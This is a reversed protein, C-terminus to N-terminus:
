PILQKLLPSMLIVAISWVIMILAPVMCRLFIRAYSAENVAQAALNGSLATPPVIDAVGAILSVAASTIITSKPLLALVYPFGLIFTSGFVTGFSGLLPLSILSPYFLWDPLGAFFFTTLLGRVGTLSLIESKIGVTVIIMLIIFSQGALAETSARFFDRIKLKLLGTLAGIMLILPLSLHPFHPVTRECLLLVTVVIIPLYVLPGESDSPSESAKRILDELATKDGYRLGIWLAFGAALPLTLLLTILTFGEYPIAIIAGIYMLPINVPPAIMGLIAGMTIFVAAWPRPIGMGLLLPAAVAGTSVVAVSGIGTLMGPLMLLFMIGLLMLVRYRGFRLLIAKKVAENFGIESMVKVLILGAAFVMVIYFFGFSGEVFRSVPLGTGAVLSGAIASLTITYPAPIKIATSFIIVISLIVVLTLVTSLVM